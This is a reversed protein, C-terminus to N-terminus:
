TCTITRCASLPLIIRGTSSAEMRKLQSHFSGSFVNSPSLTASNGGGWSPKFGMSEKCPDNWFPKFVQVLSLAFLPLSFHAASCSFPMKQTLIIEARNFWKCFRRTVQTASTCRKPSSSTPSLILKPSRGSTKNFIRIYKLNWVPWINEINKGNNVDRRAYKHPM